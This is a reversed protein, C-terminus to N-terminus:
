CSGDPEVREGGGAAWEVLQGLALGADNCPIRRHLLPHLRHHRINRCCAETLRRNQFVGGTLGIQSIGETDAFRQALTGVALALSEHFLAAREATPRAEDTLLPLLPSWDLELLSDAARWPLTIAWNGPTARSELWMAAQGEYSSDGNFGCLAAAADFLRGISHTDPCNLRRACAKELMDVTPEDVGAPRWPHGAAQTLGLACRWPSRAAREGGPLPFPRLTAVRTWQGPCGHFVEGGWLMTNMGPARGDPDGLGSGDWVFVLLPEEIENDAVLASAHARHHGVISVPLGSQRAWRHSAYDPHRDCLLQGATLGTNAQLIEAQTAFHALAAPNDLDGLHPSLVARDAHAMALTVKQQGGLALATEPVPHALRWTKPADGRGCRLPRAAGEIVRVLPDDVPNVIPRDHDLVGDIQPLTSDLMARETIMPEGSRNASTMVLPMTLDQILMVQLPNNPLMAGISDLGPALTDPLPCAATRKLPLIPRAPSQLAETAASDVLLGAGIIEELGAFLVALPKDPRQKIRRLRAIALPDDARAALQYGGVARIAIVGAQEIRELVSDWIPGEARPLPGGPVFPCDHTDAICPDWRLVPGCNPCCLPQAHFRRDGPDQYERMCDACLAFGALATNPRDYPLQRILSYRPGCHSCSAFPHRYRRNAPDFLESLCEPCPPLDQPMQAGPAPESDLIAFKRAGVPGTPQSSALVPRAPPPANAIVQREFAALDEPGGEVHITVGTADNRVWGVLAHGTALRYVHPRFGVGQVQGRIRIRRAHRFPDTM